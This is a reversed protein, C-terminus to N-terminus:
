RLLSGQISDAQTLSKIGRFIAPHYVVISGVDDPM